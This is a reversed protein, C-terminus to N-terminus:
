SSKRAPSGVYTGSTDISKIVVSGAGITVNKTIELCQIVCANIGLWCCEGIIVQGALSANPSIHVGHHLQCDHEVTANTNIICADGVNAGINIAANALVACGDGIKAHESVTAKPHIITALKASAKKLEQSLFLRTHNDGLAVIFEAKNLFYRWEDVMAKIPWNGNSKRTPYSDDIFFIDDYIKTQEACDAVVRAHGGAGIIVLTKSM